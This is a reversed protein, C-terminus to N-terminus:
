EDTNLVLAAGQLIWHSPHHDTNLDADFVHGQGKANRRNQTVYVPIKISDKLKLKNFEIPVIRMIPMHYILEKPHQARVSNQPIDWAVGELYLGSVFCGDLPKESIQDQKTYNTVETYLTSKDLAWKNRRCAAQVLATLYSEPIHLGSLWIVTPEGMEYWNIYQQRRNQYHNIWSGLKKETKPALGAWPGPLFSNYLSYALDDLEANMGIRGSLARLLNNLSTQIKESLTKFRDMEQYLVVETPSLPATNDETRAIRMKKPDQEFVSKELLDRALGELLRDKEQASMSSGGVSEMKLFNIWLAKADNTYYTIEANANLGFVIPSDANPLLSIKEKELDNKDTYPYLEYKYGAPTEAFYFKHNKDFLFDGMYEDLYTMLSRRDFEDTVRGGYMAEGILYKLSDWPISDDKNELSKTLYLNLLKFSILFDSFNFDYTVNWGIKGYKARDLIIAHMFMLVYSLPKYAQHSCINLQEDTVKNAVDSMNNRIGAPPETVIKLANQLLGLPFEKTPQTTMWMRFNEHPIKSEGDIRKEIGKICNPLLDCNQLLVWYGKLYANAVMDYATKEMGEGLSLAMFKKGTYGLSTALGRIYSSPDAGPSLIYIIPAKESTLIMLNKDDLVPMRVYEEDSLAEVILKDIGLSIRDPRSVRLILLRQFTSIKENYPKPLPVSEPTESDFWEKWEDESSILDNAFERWVDGLEVLSEIDKCNTESLWKVIRGNNSDGLKTNGKLFFDLEKRNLQNKGEKIMLVMQFTFIRRHNKFIGWTVYRYVNQTLKDIIASVKGAASEGTDEKVGSLFLARKFVELYSSLSYQYMDSVANMKQMCFFLIAGHKAAPEYELRAAEISAQTAKSTVQRQQISVASDNSDQLTKILEINDIISKKKSGEKARVPDINEMLEQKKDSNVLEDLITAQLRALENLDKSTERILENRIRDSEEDVHRVVESLLQDTLGSMNVTYNIVSTKGMIEPTYRPNPLKSTLYVIFDKEGRLPVDVEKDGIIVKQIGGITVYKKLLINDIIPDLEEGVNEILIPDGERFAMELKKGMEPDNFNTTYKQAVTKERKKIWKVAQLQPDICLPYRTPQTTLIGNQVSLEDNPLGEYNWQTVAVDSTLLQEIKFGDRMQLGKELIDQKFFETMKNRFERDFPGFYGLFSSSLLCEGELYEIMKEKLAKDIEWRVKESSLGTLLNQANSLKTNMEAVKKNLEKLKKNSEDIIASLREEEEKLDKIMQKTEQLDKTLFAQEKNLAAINAKLEKIRVFVTYLSLTSQAWQYITEIALSVQALTKGEGLYNKINDIQNNARKYMSETLNDIEYETLRSVINPDRLMSQTLTWPGTKGGDGKQLVDLIQMLVGVMEIGKPPNNSVALEGLKKKDILKVKEKAAILEPESQTFMDNAKNQETAIQGQKITLKAEKEEAAKTAEEGKKRKEKVEVILKSVKSQEETVIKTDEEIIVKLGEIEITTEDLKLLGQEYEKIKSDYIERNVDLNTIYCRLFDLYNKPTNFVSRKTSLEYQRSYEPMSLHVTVFHGVVKNFLEEEFNLPKLYVKAVSQLAEAPWPFFWDITTNSILGPFNRCNIRLNDGAPSMCLVIHLNQRLTDCAIEWLEDSSGTKKLQDTVYSTLPAKTGADFLNNVVGVTLMTNILELFSPDVIMADTFMFVTKTSILKNIYFELIDKRFSAEGYNKKIQISFLDYSCIFTALNTLSNKGSGGFGVLMSNGRPFRIVRILRVLHDVAYNFLVLPMEANETNYQELLEECKTKVKSFSGINQYVMPDEYDLELPQSEKFDGYLYDGENIKKMIEDGFTEKVVSNMIDNEVTHKDDNTILKDVFVRICENKWLRIFSEKTPFASKRSRLLGQYLKSLDRLNFVYHFKIPSRPLADIVRQYLKYTAKTIEKGLDSFETPFEHRKLHDELISNYITEISKEKPFQITLCNFLSLFRPDVSNYGGGPPLLAAVYQCDRYERKELIGGREYMTKKDILFKLLAIPQQTGYKDVKPMHLEDIFIILKKNGKPGYIGPRRKDTVSEINRQVELSDTRSSFNLNLVVNSDLALSSLYNKIMVTKATGPEGVFITPKAKEMFLTLLYNFKVTDTTPVLIKSFDGDPPQEFAKVKSSIPIWSAGEYVFEFVTKDLPVVSSIHKVFSNFADSDAENKICSGFSWMCCYVFLCEFRNTETALVNIDEPLVCDMLNTFQQVLNLSTRSISLEIPGTASAGGDEGTKGEMVFDVLPKIYKGYYEAFIELLQDKNEKGEVLRNKWTNFFYEYSMNKSDVYVMGCRSITAASAPSLDYVEFLLKCYAKLRIRDGNSLTLLRNDDMVSNMNEVWIADVDGDFLIWRLETKPAKDTPGREPPDENAIKFNRSLIGDKWERTQPDMIGYLEFLGQAKPNMIYYVVSRTPNTREDKLLDIITTKGAGTPGVVMTTHRTEMTEMLQIVKRAQVEAQQLGKNKQCEMVRMLMEQNSKIDTNRGPFLDNLLGKFLEVDEYVFKPMNMDRLARMLVDEEPHDPSARKLAGAMVLVSKLARLGFDYHHQKSLQEQSLKYLVTMKKALMRADQFGESMLMNECIIKLDPVVMTVPRFLAKLNDPLESRGEYGPNMTVFIGVTPKLNVEEDLIEVTTKGQVLARQIDGIQTSVVSLVPPLIRNFEDFVGWFGTQCLGSYNTGMAFVDFNEGCNTVVARIALNKGLDKCTETKGTGAPGAPAGGLNFTLATTLTMVCRDTLPTIVLRSTLGQYEYGYRFKGTCQEISIDNLNNRWYFRLQSEWEFERADLISDRVFRDVIDREHVSIIIMNNIKKRTNGSPDDAELDSRVIEILDKLENTQVGAEKKMAYKDGEKVKRFVDEVRWTWWIQKGVLVIMCIYKKIWEEREMKAFNFVGEKTMKRLTTVTIESVKSMWVEVPGDPKYPEFFDFSEGEDSFLKVIKNSRDFGISKVNDFLKIMHPQISSVESSGLISLLDDDSIFYFRPFVKKKSNLYDTLSKQSKDLAQALNQLQALTTDNIVCNNMINPNKSAKENLNKFAKHHQEFTKTEKSLQTRIDENGIYIGELYLWKTQVKIWEEVTEQIKILNDMWKRVDNKLHPGAFKSGEIGQLTNLHEDLMNKIEEDVKVKYGGKKHDAIEFNAVTRWFQEIDQLEKKNKFENNAAAMVEDVKDQFEHLSLNLVQQLTIQSFNIGETPKDILKLLREWHNDKFHLNQKIKEISSLPKEFELQSVELKNLVTGKLSEDKKFEKIKLKYMRKIEELEKIDFKEWQKGSLEDIMGRIKSYFGYLKGMKDLEIAMKVLNPYPTIEMGFLKQMKVTEARQDNLQKVEQSFHEMKEVGENLSTEYSSPGTKVYIDYLKDIKEQLKQVEGKTQREFTQISDKITDHKQKAKFLLNTWMKGLNLCARFKKEDFNIGYAEYKKLVNCKEVLEAIEFEKDETSDRIKALTNLCKKVQDRTGEEKRIENYYDLIVRKLDEADKDVIKILSAAIRTIRDKVQNEYTKKVKTFDIKIFDVDEFSSANEYEKLLMHLIDLNYEFNWVFPYKELLKEIKMKYKQSFLGKRHSDVPGDDEAGMEDTPIEWNKQKKVMIMRDLAHSILQKIEASIDGVVINTSIEDVFTYKSSSREMGKDNNQFEVCICTGDKWRPFRAATNIITNKLNELTSSIEAQIPNTVVSNNTFEASVKFLPILPVTSNRRRRSLLAKYTLLARIIMKVLANYVRREWYYYYLRMEELKDGSSSREFVAMAIQPLMASGIKHYKDSLTDIETAMYKEFHSVFEQLSPYSQMDKQFDRPLGDKLAKQMETQKKLLTNFDYEKIIKADEITHIIDEINRTKEEVKNRKDNFQKIESKCNEIFDNIGLSNLYYSSVGPELKEKLTKLNISLLNKEVDKLGNITTNYERLMKEIKDITRYYEEEQLAINLIKKPVNPVMRDLYKAENLLIRFDAPLNVEFQEKENKRLITKSLLDNTSDNIRKKWMNFETDQFDDLDNFLKKYDSIVEQFETSDTFTTPLRQKGQQNNSMFLVMPAKIRKLISKKWAIAGAVPPKNKTVKPQDKNELFISKNENLEKKYNNLVENFCQKINENVKDLSDVDFKQLFEFGSESSRLNQFTKQIMGTAEKQVTESSDTFSKFLTNFDGTNVFPDYTINLFPKVLDKADKVLKDIEDTNGTVAKLKPGLLQLLKQLQTAIKRYKELVESMNNPKNRIETQTYDWREGGDTELLEKTKQYHDVWNKLVSMGKGINEVSENLKGEYNFDENQSLLQKIDLKRKVKDCIENAITTLLKSMKEDKFNRSIIFVLRLGNLLSGLCQEINTLDGSQLIKFQRELTNLFKSNDKAVATEQSLRKMEHDFDQVITDIKDERSDVM